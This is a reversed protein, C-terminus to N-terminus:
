WLKFWSHKLILVYRKSDLVYRPLLFKPYGKFIGTFLINFHFESEVLNRRCYVLWRQNSAIRNCWGILFRLTWDIKLNSMTAGCRGILEDIIGILRANLVATLARRPGNLKSSLKLKQVVFNLKSALLNLKSAFNVKLKSMRSNKLSSNKPNQEFSSGARFIM